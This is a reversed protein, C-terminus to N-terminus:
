QKGPMPGPNSLCIPPTYDFKVNTNIPKPENSFLPEDTEIHFAQNGKWYGFVEGTEKNRIFRRPPIEAASQMVAQLEKEKSNNPSNPNDSSNSNNSHFFGIISRSKGREDFKEAKAKVPKKFSFTRKVPQAKPEFVIRPEPPPQPLRTPKPEQYIKNPQPSPTQTIPTIQTIPAIPKVLIPNSPKSVAVRIMKPQTKSKAHVACVAEVREPRMYVPLTPIFSKCGTHQCPTVCKKHAKFGPWYDPLEVGDSEILSHCVICTSECNGPYKCPKGEAKVNLIDNKLCAKHFASGAHFVYAAQHAEMRGTEMLEKFSTEELNHRVKSHSRLCRKCCEETIYISNYPFKSELYNSVFNIEHKHM